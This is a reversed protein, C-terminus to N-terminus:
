LGDYPDCIKGALCPNCFGRKTQDQFFGPDCVTQNASGEPCKHHKDCYTPPKSVKNGGPCYYGASCNGTPNVNGVGTFM